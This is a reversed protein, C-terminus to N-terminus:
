NKNFGLKDKLLKIFKFEKEFKPSNGYSCNPCHIVQCAKKGCGQCSRGFINEDFEYGCM